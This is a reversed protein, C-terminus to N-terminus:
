GLLENVKGIIKNPTNWEDREFESVPTKINFTSELNLLLEVTALSDLLGNVYFDDDLANSLDEGTIENLINLVETKTDM